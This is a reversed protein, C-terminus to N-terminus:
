LFATITAGVPIAAKFAPPTVMWEKKWNGKAPNIGSNPTDGWKEEATFNSVFSVNIRCKAM